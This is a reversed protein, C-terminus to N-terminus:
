IMAVLVRHVTSTAMREGKEGAMVAAIRAPGYKTTRRIQVIRLEV